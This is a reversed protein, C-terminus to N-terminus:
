SFGYTGTVPDRFFPIRPPFFTFVWFVLGLAVIATLAVWASLGCPKERQLLATELRYAAAAARFFITINFWDARIGLIGTYTYYLLPILGLGVLFGVLKVCWFDQRTKGYVRYEWLAFLLMPMYLLKLHEWISENVASFLAAVPHGGTLEFLFHLFTGVIATFLFGAMQLRSPSHQM